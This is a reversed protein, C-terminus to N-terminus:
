AASMAQSAPNDPFQNSGAKPPSPRRESSIGPDTTKIHESKMGCCALVLDDMNTAPNTCIQANVDIGSAQLDQTSHLQRGQLM